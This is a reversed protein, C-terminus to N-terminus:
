YLKPPRGPNHLFLVSRLIFDIGLQPDREFVGITPMAPVPEYERKIAYGQMEPVQPSHGHYTTSPSHGSISHGSQSLTGGNSFAHEHMPSFGRTSSPAAGPNQYATTRPGMSAPTLAANEDVPQRMAIAAKRNELEGEFPVGRSLLIERLALNERQQEQLLTKQQQITSSAKNSEAVYVERLRALELELAKIYQEKRERHTRCSAM